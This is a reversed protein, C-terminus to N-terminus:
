PVAALAKHMAALPVTPDVPPPFGQKKWFAHAGILTPNNFLADREELFTKMEDDM